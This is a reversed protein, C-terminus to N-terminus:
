TCSGQLQSLFIYLALNKCTFNKSPYYIGRSCFLPTASGELIKVEICGGNFEWSNKLIEFPTKTSVGSLIGELDAVAKIIQLMQFMIQGIYNKM